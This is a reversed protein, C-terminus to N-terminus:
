APVKAPMRSSEWEIMAQLGDGLSTRPSYGFANTAMGTDAGTDRVDGLGRRVLMVELEGCIHCIAAVVDKMSVRAGGGINALGTWDSVGAKRMATVVDGVFTWDRTQEGDGYLEFTGGHVACKVLRALAMDPRQRPGYVSFLRLAATPVSYAIEYVRCLHEAALKTVGYPSVPKTASSESTPYSPADGYVSSSSAYVLKRLPRGCCGELLRQTALVNHRIYLDFNAGWSSRVGPQAALHYVVDVDALLPALLMENLDGEVFSFRECQVLTAINREKDVRPYYDTFADVAKVEDGAALLHECLHSGIFGAAGTVLAIM